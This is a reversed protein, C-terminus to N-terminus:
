VYKEGKKEIGVCARGCGGGRQSGSGDILVGMDGPQGETV